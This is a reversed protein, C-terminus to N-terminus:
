QIFPASLVPWMSYHAGLACHYATHLKQVLSTVNQPACPACRRPGVSWVNDTPEPDDAMQDTQQITMHQQEKNDKEKKDKETQEEYHKMAKTAYWEDAPKTQKCDPGLHDHSGCKFCQAFSTTTGEQALIDDETTKSKLAPSPKGPPPRPRTFVKNHNILIDIASDLDTPFKDVGMSYDDNLNCKLISYKTPESNRIAILAIWQDMAKKCLQEKTVSNAQKHAPTTKVFEDLINNGVLSVFIDAKEELRKKFDAPHENEYQRCLLFNLAIDTLQLFPYHARTPNHMLTKVVKLLEFPDDEIKSKFDPHTQIERVMDHTCFDQMIVSFAKPQNQHLNDERTLYKEVQGKTIMDFMKQEAECQNNDKKTSTQPKPMESSLNVLQEDRLSKAIDHGDKFNSQIYLLAQEKVKSYTGYRQSPRGPQFPHFKMTPEQISQEKTAYNNPPKKTINKSISQGARVSQNMSSKNNNTM